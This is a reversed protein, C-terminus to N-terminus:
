NSRLMWRKHRRNVKKHLLLLLLRFVGLHKDLLHAASPEEVGPGVRQRSPMPEMVGGVTLEGGGTAQERTGNMAM